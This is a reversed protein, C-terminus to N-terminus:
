SLLVGDEHEMCGPETEPLPLAYADTMGYRDLIISGSMYDIHVAAPRVGSHRTFSLRGTLYYATAQACKLNSFWAVEEDKITVRYCHVWSDLHLEGVWEPHRDCLHQRRWDARLADQGSDVESQRRVKETKVQERTRKHIRPSHHPPNQFSMQWGM